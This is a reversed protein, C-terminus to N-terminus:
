DQYHLRLMLSPANTYITIIGNGDSTHSIARWNWGNGEVRDAGEIRFDEVFAGLPHTLTLAHAGERVRLAAITRQEDPWEAPNHTMRGSAGDANVYHGLWEDSDAPYDGAPLYFYLNRDGDGHGAGTYSYVVGTQMNTVAMDVSNTGDVANSIVLLYVAGGEANVPADMIANASTKISGGMLINTGAESTEAGSGIDLATSAGRNAVVTGGSIEIHGGSAYTGGGIGAGSLYPRDGAGGTATVSGGTIAIFGGASANGGGIGAGCGNEGLGGGQAVVTGGAITIIGGDGGNDGCGIGAGGAGGIATINGGLISIKGNRRDKGSGIGAANGGGIATLISTVDGNTIALTAGSPVEIAARYRGSMLFNSGVLTLNLTTNSALSFASLHRNTVQINLNSITVNAVAVDTKVTITNVTSTGYILYPDSDAIKVNGDAIDYSVARVAASVSINDIYVAYNGKGFNDRLNFRLCYLDEGPLNGNLVPEGDLIFEYTHRTLDAMITANHWVGAQYSGMLAGNWFQGDGRFDFQNAFGTGNSLHTDMFVTFNFYDEQYNTTIAPIFVSFNVLMAPIQPLDLRIQESRVESMVGTSGTWKFECVQSGTHNRIMPGDTDYTHSISSPAYPVNSAVTVATDISHYPTEFSIEYLSYYDHACSPRPWLLAIGIITYSVFKINKRANM